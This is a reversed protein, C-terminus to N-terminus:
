RSSSFHQRLKKESVAQNEHKTRSLEQCCLAPIFIRLSIEITEFPAPHHNQRSLSLETKMVLRSLFSEPDLKALNSISDFDNAIIRIFAFDSQPPSIRHPSKNQVIRLDLFEFFRLSSSRRWKNSDSILGRRFLLLSSNDAFIRSFEPRIRDATRSLEALDILLKLLDIGFLLIDPFAQRFQLRIIRIHRM